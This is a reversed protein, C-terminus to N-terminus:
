RDVSDVAEAGYWSYAILFMARQLLGEFESFATMALQFGVVLVLAIVDGWRPQGQQRGRHMGVLLVGLIFGLGVGFSTISHLLDETSDYPASADFSRSSFAATAIMSVAFVCHALTGAGGWTRSRLQALWLVAFGFCLFGTRAIWSAQVLQGASESTTHELVSYGESMFLPAVALLGVSVVLLALPAFRGPGEGGSSPVPSVVSGSPRAGM